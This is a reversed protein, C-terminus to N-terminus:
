FLWGVMLLASNIGRNDEHLEGNSIHHVRVGAQLTHGDTRTWEVGAGAQPNFNFRLGQGDVQFDTYIVGIGAEVYPRWQGAAYSDLYKFALMNISAMARHGERGALGFNAEVRFRLDDPAEHWFVRDYDFLAYGQVLGIGFTDPDYAMGSLVAVGYRTPELEAGAAAPAAFTSAAFLCLLLVTTARKMM